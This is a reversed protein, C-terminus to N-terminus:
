VGNNDGGTSDQDRQPKIVIVFSRDDIRYYEEAGRLGVGDYYGSIIRDRVDQMDWGVFLNPYGTIYEAAATWAANRISPIDMTRGGGVLVKPHEYGREDYVEWVYRANDWGAEAVSGAPQKDVSNDNDIMEAEKRKIAQTTIDKEPNKYVRVTVYWGDGLRYWYVGTKKSDDQGAVFDPDVPIVNKDYGPPVRVNLRRIIYGRLAGEFETLFNDETIFDPTYGNPRGGMFSSLGKYLSDDGQLLGQLVDRLLQEEPIDSDADDLLMRAVWRGDGLVSGSSSWDFSDMVGGIRRTVSNLYQTNSWVCSRTSYGTSSGLPRVIIDGGDVFVFDVSGFFDPEPTDDPDNLIDYSDFGAHKYVEDGGTANNTNVLETTSQM